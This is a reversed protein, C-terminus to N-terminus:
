LCGQEQDASIFPLIPTPITLGGFICDSSGESPYHTKSKTLRLLFLVGQNREAM